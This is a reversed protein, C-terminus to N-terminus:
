GDGKHLHVNKFQVPYKHIEKLFDEEHATLQRSLMHIPLLNELGILVYGSEEFERALQNIAGSVDKAKSAFGAYAGIFGDARKPNTGSVVLTATGVWVYEDPM